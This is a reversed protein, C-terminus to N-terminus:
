LEKWFGQGSGIRIKEKMIIENKISFRGAPLNMEADKIIQEIKFTEL